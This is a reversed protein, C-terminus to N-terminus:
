RILYASSFALVGVMLAYFLVMTANEIKKPLPWFFWHKLHGMRKLDLSQDILTHLFMGLIVHFFVSEPQSIAFYLFLVALIPQGLVSHILLRNEKKHNESWFKLAKLIYGEGIIRRLEISTERYRNTIYVYFPHDVIDILLTGLIVLFLSFVDLRHGLLDIIGVYTLAALLHFVWDWAFKIDSYIVKFVPKLESELSILSSKTSSEM